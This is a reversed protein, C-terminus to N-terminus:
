RFGIWKYFYNLSELMLITLGIALLAIIPEWVGLIISPIIFFIVLFTILAATYSKM